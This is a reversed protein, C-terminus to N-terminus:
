YKGYGKFGVLKGKRVIITKGTREYLDNLQKITM